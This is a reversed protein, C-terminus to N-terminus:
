PPPILETWSLDRLSLTERYYPFGKQSAVLAKKIAEPELDLDHTLKLIERAIHAPKAERVDGCRKWFRNRDRIYRKLREPDRSKWNDEAIGLIQLHLFQKELEERRLHQIGLERTKRWIKRVLALTKKYDDRHVYDLVVRDHAPVAPVHAGQLTKFLDRARKKLARPTEPATAYYFLLHRLPGCLEYFALAHPGFDSAMRTFSKLKECSYDVLEKLRNEDLCHSTTTGGLLYVRILIAELAQWGYNPPAKLDQIHPYGQFILWPMGRKARRCHDMHRFYWRPGPKPPILRRVAPAIYWASLGTPSPYANLLRIIRHESFGRTPFGLRDGPVTISGLSQFLRVAQVVVEGLAQKRKVKRLSQSARQRLSSEGLNSALDDELISEPGQYKDPWSDPFRKAECDAAFARQLVATVAQRSPRPLPGPVLQEDRVQRWVDWESQEKKRVRGAGM